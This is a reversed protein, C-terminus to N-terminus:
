LTGADWERLGVADARGGTAGVIVVPGRLGYLRSCPSEPGADVGSASLRAQVTAGSTRIIAWGTLRSSSAKNSGDKPLLPHNMTLAIASNRVPQGTLRDADVVHRAFGADIIEFTSKM